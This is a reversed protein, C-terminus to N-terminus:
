IAGAKGAEHLHSILNRTDPDLSSAFKQLWMERDSVPTHNLDIAMETLVWVLLAPKEKFQGAVDAVIAQCPTLGDEDPEGVWVAELDITAIATDEKEAAAIKQKLEEVRDKWRSRERDRRASDDIMDACFLETEARTLEENLTELTEM